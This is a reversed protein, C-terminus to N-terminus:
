ESMDFQKATTGTLGLRQREHYADKTRMTRVAWALMTRLVAIRHLSYVMGVLWLLFMFAGALFTFLGAIGFVVVGAIVALSEALTIGWVVGWVLRSFRESLQLDYAWSTLGALYGSLAVMAFIGIVCGVFGSACLISEVQTSWTRVHALIIVVVPLAIWGLSTWRVLLRRLRWDRSDGEPSGLRPRPATLLYVGVCWMAVVIVASQNVVAPGYRLQSRIVPSALTLVGVLLGAYLMLTAGLRLKKLYPLPAEDLSDHFRVFSLGISTGCEPCVGSGKLGRLNYGCKHCMRDEDLVQGKLLRSFKFYKESNFASM